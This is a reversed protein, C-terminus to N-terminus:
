NYNAVKTSHLILQRCVLSTESGLELTSGCELIVTLRQVFMVPVEVLVVNIPKTLQTHLYM